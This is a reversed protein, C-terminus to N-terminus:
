EGAPNVIELLSACTALNSEPHQPDYFIAVSMGEELTRTFDNGSGSHSKGSADQFEYTITSNNKFYRQKIVRGKAVAGNELLNWDRRAWRRMFYPIIAILLAICAFFFEQGRFEAFSHSREWVGYLNSLLLMEIILVMLLMVSFTLKGRRTLQVPRPPSLSLLFDYQEAKGGRIAHDETTSVPADNGEGTGQSADRLQRLGQTAGAFIVGLLLTPLTAFLIAGVWNHQEIGLAIVGMLDFIAILAPIIWRVRTLRREAADRNWGCRKCYSRGMAPITAAGCKPCKTQVM